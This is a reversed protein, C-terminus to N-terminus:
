ENSCKTAAPTRQTATLVGKGRQLCAMQVDLLLTVVCHVFASCWTAPPKVLHCEPQLSYGDVVALEQDSECAKVQLKLVWFM